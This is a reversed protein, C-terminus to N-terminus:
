WVCASREARLSLVCLTNAMFYFQATDVAMGAEHSRRLWAWVQWVFFDNIIKSSKNSQGIERGSM